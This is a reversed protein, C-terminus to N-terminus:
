PGCHQGTDFPRRGHHCKTTVSGHDFKKLIHTKLGKAGESCWKEWNTCTTSIGFSANNLWIEFTTLTSKM